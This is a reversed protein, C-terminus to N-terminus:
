PSLRSREQPHPRLPHCTSRLPPQLTRSAQAGSGGEERWDDTMTCCAACSSLVTANRKACDGSSRRSSSAAFLLSHSNTSCSFASCFAATRSEALLSSTGSAVSASDAAHPRSQLSSNSRPPSSVSSPFSFFFLLLLVLRVLDNGHLSDPERRATSTATGCTPASKKSITLLDDIDRGVQQRPDHFQNSQCSLFANAVCLPASPWRGYGLNDLLNRGEARLTCNSLDSSLAKNKPVECTGVLSAPARANWWNATCTKQPDLACASSGIYTFTCCTDPSFVHKKRAVDFGGGM